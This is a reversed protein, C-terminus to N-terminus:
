GPCAKVIADYAATFGSLSFDDTVLKNGPAPSRAIATIGIKFAHVAAAGDRAFAADGATYFALVTSGVTVTANAGKAYPFGATLAAEDRVGPRETVSLLVQGRGAIEPTSGTPRTFAYCIKQGGQQYTAATWSAFVGLPAPNGTAPPPAAGALPILSVAFLLSLIPRLRM